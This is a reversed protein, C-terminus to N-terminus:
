ARISWTLVDGRWHGETGLVWVVELRATSCDFRWVAFAKHHGFLAVPLRETIIVCRLRRCPLRTFTLGCSIRGDSVSRLGFNSLLTSEGRGVQNPPDPGRSRVVWKLAEDERPTKAPHLMV